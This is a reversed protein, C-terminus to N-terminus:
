IIHIDAKEEGKWYIIKRKLYNLTWLHFGLSAPKASMSPPCIDAMNGCLLIILCRHHCCSPLVDIKRNEGWSHFSIWLGQISKGQIQGLPIYLFNPLDAVTGVVFLCWYDTLPGQRLRQYVQIDSPFLRRVPDKLIGAGDEKVEIYDLIARSFAM